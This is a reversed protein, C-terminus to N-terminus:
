DEKTHRKRLFVFCGAAAIVVLVAYPAIDMMIGTPTSSERTNTYAVTVDANKQMTGSVQGVIDKQANDKDWTTSGANNVTTTYGAKGAETEVITYEDGARLGYIKVMEPKVVSNDIKSGLYFTVSSGNATITGTEDVDVQGNYNADNWYKFVQNDKTENTISVTFAFEETMDAANGKITKSLTLDSLTDQQDKKGYDNTFTESKEDGDYVVVGAVKVGSGNNEVIVYLTKQADDYDINADIDANTNQTEKLTYKYVGAHTFYSETVKIAIDKMLSETASSTYTVSDIAIAGDVGSEVPIGQYVENVSPNAATATFKFTANPAYVDDPVTLVKSMNVTYVGNSSSGEFQPGEPDAASAPVIAMTALMATAVFSAAIRGISKRTLKM